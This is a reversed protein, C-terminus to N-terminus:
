VDVLIAYIPHICWTFWIISSPGWSNGLLLTQPKISKLNYCCLPHQSNLMKPSIVLVSVQVGFQITLQSRVYNKDIGPGSSPGRSRVGWSGRWTGNHQQTLCFSHGTGWLRHNGDEASSSGPYLYRVLYACVSDPYVPMPSDEVLSPEHAVPGICGLDCM